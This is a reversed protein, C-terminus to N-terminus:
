IQMGGDGHGFYVVIYSCYRGVHCGMCWRLFICFKQTPTLADYAGWEGSKCAQIYLLFLAKEEQM